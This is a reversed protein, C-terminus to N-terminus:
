NEQCNVYALGIVPALIRPGLLFLKSVTSLLIAINETSSSMVSTAYIPLVKPIRASTSYLTGFKKISEEKSDRLDLVKM